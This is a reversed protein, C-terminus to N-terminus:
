SWSSTTSFSRLPMYTSIRSDETVWKRLSFMRATVSTFGAKARRMLKQVSSTVAM